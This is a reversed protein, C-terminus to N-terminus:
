EEMEKIANLYGDALYELTAGGGSSIFSFYKEADYKNIASVTDGGGAIVKAKSQKIYDLLTKTGEAFAENEFMGATGNLFMLESQIIIDKYETPIIDLIKNEHMVHNKSMIIKKSYKQLLEKLELLIEENGTALSDKVDEGSAKLFSNLIGGGLLLYDCKTILKKIIPLKDEVKAGGMFITYPRNRINFLPELSSLESEVLFGVASPIHQGVGSTSAHARHMTGFADNIFVDGLSAWFKSLNSDNNSELKNPYDLFRTNELMIIEGNNTKDIIEKINENYSDSLFTIKKNLILSLKEAIISLSNDKKDSESKIRGFHSLIVIKCNKELLYNITKLSKIIRTEDTIVGNLVPVNYDCRLIVTKNEVEIERITKM